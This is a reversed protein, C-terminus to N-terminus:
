FSEGVKLNLDEAVESEFDFLVIAYSSEEEQEDVDFSPPPPPPISPMPPSPLDDDFSEDSPLEVPVTKKTEVPSTKAKASTPKIITPMSITPPKILSRGNSLTDDFAPSPVISSTCGYFSASGVNSPKPQILPKVNRINTATIPKSPAMFDDVLDFPDSSFTTSRTTRGSTVKFDSVSFDDEFGSFSSFFCLFETKIAM